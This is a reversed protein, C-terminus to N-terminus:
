LAATCIDSFTALVRRTQTRNYKIYGKWQTQTYPQEDGRRISALRAQFWDENQETWMGVDM